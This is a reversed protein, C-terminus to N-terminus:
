EVRRPMITSQRLEDVDSWTDLQYATRNISIVDSQLESLERLVALLEGEARDNLDYGCARDVRERIEEIRILCSSIQGFLEGFSM